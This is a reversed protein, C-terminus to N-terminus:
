GHVKGNDQLGALQFVQANIQAGLRHLMKVVRVYEFGADLRAAVFSYVAVHFDIVDIVNRANIEDRRQYSLCM